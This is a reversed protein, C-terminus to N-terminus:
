RSEPLDQASKAAPPVDHAHRNKSYRYLGYVGLLLLAMALAFFTICGRRVNQPSTQEEAGFKAILEDALPEEAAAVAPEAPVPIAPKAVPLPTIAPTVPKGTAAAIEQDLWALHGQILARQRQLESLRDSM